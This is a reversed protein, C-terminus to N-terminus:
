KRMEKITILKNQLSTAQEYRSVVLDRSSTAFAESLAYGRPCTCVDTCEANSDLIETLQDYRKNLKEIDGELIEYMYDLDEATFTIKEMFDTPPQDSCSDCGTCDCDAGFLDLQEAAPAHPAGEADQPGEIPNGFWGPEDYPVFLLPYNCEGCHVIVGDVNEFVAINDTVEKECVACFLKM